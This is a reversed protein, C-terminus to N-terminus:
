RLALSGMPDWPDLEIPPQELAALAEAPIHAKHVVAEFTYEDFWEDSMQFFGKVGAEESWSNEVRWKIPKGSSDLDVGTFVMAHNMASQCYELREAKTMGNGAGYVLEYDFMGQDMVGGDRALFHGVDAGFWASEGSRLQAIVANKMVDIPVNVYQVKGGGLVNGLMKVTFARNFDHGPRPDNILCVLDDLDEGVYKDYFSKPTMKGDRHFVKDKDRWQWDFEMPPEGLHICLMRYIESLMAVKRTRLEETTAGDAAAGRLRAADERLKGTIHYCMRGTSSSSETEPMVGKPAVGHKRVVNVFMDWQGGDQVPSALLHNLLRSGVPEDLTALIAELFFNAKEMKDWFMVYNQSFEFDAEVNMREMARTRWTNLAAFLWCRGSGKQSTAPNEKLHESFSHDVKSAKRRNTAVKDVPTTCVANMSMRYRPNADFDAQFSAILDSTLAGESPGIVASSAM